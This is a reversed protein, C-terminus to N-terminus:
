FCAPIQGVDFGDSFFGTQRGFCLHSFRYDNLNMRDILSSQLPHQEFGVTWAGNLGILDASCVIIKGNLAKADFLMGLKRNIFWTDISSGGVSAGTYLDAAKWYDVFKSVWPVWRGAPENGSALMLISLSALLKETCTM